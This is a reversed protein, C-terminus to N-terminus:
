LERAVAAFMYGRGWVTRILEAEGTRHLKRRLRSVLTDISRGPREADARHTLEMLRDRNLPVGPNRIFVELLEAESSSLAVCVGDPAVLEMDATRFTWEALAYEKIARGEVVHGQARRLAAKVRALLERGSFPKLVYDDAGLDLGLVRDLEDDRATLMIIPLDYRRRRLQACLSMGDEGPLMVDLILLDAGERELHDFLTDGRAMQVVTYGNHALLKGLLELLDRDDDVIVIRPNGGEPDPVPATKKGAVGTM